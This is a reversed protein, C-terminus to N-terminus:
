LYNFVIHLPFSVYSRCRCRAQTKTDRNYQHSYLLSHMCYDIILIGAQRRVMTRQYRTRYRRGNKYTEHSVNMQWWGDSKERSTEVLEVLFRPRRKGFARLVPLYNKNRSRDPLRLKKLKNAWQPHTALQHVEDETIGAGSIKLHTLDKCYSAFHV